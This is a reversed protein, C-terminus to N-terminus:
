GIQMRSDGLYKACLESHETLWATPDFAYRDQFSRTEMRMMYGYNQNLLLGLVPTPSSLYASICEKLVDYNSNEKDGGYSMTLRGSSAVLPDGTKGKASQLMRLAGQPPMGFAWNSAITRIAAARSGDHDGVRRLQSALSFWYEANESFDKCIERLKPIALEPQTQLFPKVERFRRAVSQPDDVEEDGRRGQNRELWKVFLDVSSFAVEIGAEDHVMDCVIPERDECGYPWYLGFCDGNGVEANWVPHFGLPPYAGGIRVDDGALSLADIQAPRKM